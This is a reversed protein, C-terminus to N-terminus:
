ERRLTSSPSTAGPQKEALSPAKKVREHLGRLVDLCVGPNKKCDTRARELAADALGSLALAAAAHDCRSLIESWGPVCLKMTPACAQPQKGTCFKQAAAKAFPVLAPRTPKHEPSADLIAACVELDGRDCAPALRKLAEDVDADTLGRLLVKRALLDCTKDDLACARAAYHMDGHNQAM